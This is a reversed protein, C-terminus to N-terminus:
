HRGAHSAGVPLIAALAALVDDTRESKSRMQQRLIVMSTRWHTLGCRLEPLLARGAIFNLVHRTAPM